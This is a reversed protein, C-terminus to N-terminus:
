WYGKSTGMFRSLLEVFYYDGYILSCRINRGAPKHGTAEKILGEYEADNESSYKEYLNELIRYATDKYTEDKTIDYLEMFGNGIIGAASTDLPEDDNGKYILDWKPILDEETLKLFVEACKKSTEVFSEDGTFRHAMAFGTIAWGQGRAWCSDDAAGQHTREYRPTGDENFVFTHPTTFDDRVLYKQATKAHTYAADYFKKEGTLEYCRFLLPLNYMCDIIMRTLNERSFEDDGWRDWAQIYGGVSKFRRLLTEGAEVTVKKSEEDGTIRYDAYYSPSFLMGIDHGLRIGKEDLAKKLRFLPARAAKLYFEDKSMEYCLYNLGTYFGGTWGCGEKRDFVGDETAHPFLDGIKKDNQATKELVFKKASELMKTNEAM